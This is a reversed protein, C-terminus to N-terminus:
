KRPATATWFTTKSKSTNASPFSSPSPSTTHPKTPSAGSSTLAQDGLDLPIPLDWCLFPLSVMRMALAVPLYFSYFATKYVVILHHRNTLRDAGPHQGHVTLVEMPQYSREGEPTIRMGECNSPHGGEKEGDRGSFHGTM